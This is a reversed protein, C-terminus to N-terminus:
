GHRCCSMEGQGREAPIGIGTDTVAFHIVTWSASDEEIEVRVLVEGQETFKIANDVLNAVVQRLRVPDGVLTGPVDPKIFCGLELGADEAKTALMNVVDEVTKVLNFDVEELDLKGSEIKSFDLIDNIILLLSEASSKVMSLYERQEETLDTALALETMGIIGNMPTRIEHSMNALFESKARNAIEAAHAMEKAHEIAKALERNTRELEHYAEKLRQEAQKRDTINRIIGQTIHNDPDVSRSCVEVDVMTGDVRKFQTEFKLSSGGRVSEVRKQSERHNKPPHLDSIKMRLFEDREYGLMDCARKNVEIIKGSQHIIIADNSHEFLNRYREISRRLEEEVERRRTVDRVIGRFGIPKDDKGRMLSVSIEVHRKTGDKRIVEWAFGEVPEGTSYVRNFVEYVRKSNEEDSYDRNNMGIMEDKSYGLIRCLSDNFFTFDGSLDVEYYGDQISDLIGLYPVDSRM